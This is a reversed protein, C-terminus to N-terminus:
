HRQCQFISISTGHFSTKATTSSPNPDINDVASTTFLKMRQAPPCVVGDNVYQCVVAEGLKASIELVRDHSVRLGNELLM